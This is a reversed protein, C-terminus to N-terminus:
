DRTKEEEMLSNVMCEGNWRIKKASISTEAYHGYKEIVLGLGELSLGM